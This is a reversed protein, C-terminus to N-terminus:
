ATVRGSSISWWGQKTDSIKLIPYQSTDTYLQNQIMIRRIESEHTAFRITM